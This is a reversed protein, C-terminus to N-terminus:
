LRHPFRRPNKIRTPSRGDIVPGDIEPLPRASSAAPLPPRTILDIWSLRQADIVATNRAAGHSVMELPNPCPGAIFLPFGIAPVM